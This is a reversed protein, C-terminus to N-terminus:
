IKMLKKIQKKLHDLEKEGLIKSYRKEISEIISISDEILKAGRKSFCVLQARSDLPDQRRLIFGRKELQLIQRSMAQKSVGALKAIEVSQIGQPDIFRLVNFDTTTVNKYKLQRLGAILEDEFLRFLTILFRGLPQEINLDPARVKVEDLRNKPKKFLATM